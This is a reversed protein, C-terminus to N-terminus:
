DEVPVLEQWSQVMCKAGVRSQLRDREVCLQRDEQPAVYFGSYFDRARCAKELAALVVRRDKLYLLLGNNRTVQVAALSALPLCRDMPVGRMRRTMPAAPLASMPRSAGQAPRIRITIRGEVRSQVRPELQLDGPAAPPGPAFSRPGARPEDVAQAADREDAPAILALLMTGIHAALGLM